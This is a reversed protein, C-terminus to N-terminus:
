LREDDDGNRMGETSTDASRRANFRGMAAEIGDSLMCELADCGREIPKEFAQAETRSMPRLVYEAADMGVPPRGIGIRVRAFDAGFREMISAVGRHGGTGGARRLRLQGLPLDIDDHVVIM